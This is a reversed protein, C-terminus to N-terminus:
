QLYGLLRSVAHASYGPPPVTTPLPCPPSPACKLSAGFVYTHTLVVPAPMVTLVAPSGRVNVSAKSTTLTYRGAVTANYLVEYAGGSKYTPM